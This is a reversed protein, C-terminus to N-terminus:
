RKKKQVAAENGVWGNPGAHPPLVLNNWLPHAETYGPDPGVWRTFGIVSDRDIPMWKHWVGAGANLSGKYQGGNSTNGGVTRVEIKGKVNRMEGTLMEIHGKRGYGACQAAGSRIRRQREAQQADSWSGDEKAKYIIFDAPYPQVAGSSICAPTYKMYKPNDKAVDWGHSSLGNFTKGSIGLPINKNAKGGLAPDPNGWVFSLFYGVTYACYADGMKHDSIIKAEDYSGDPKESYGNPYGSTRFIINDPGYQERYTEPV